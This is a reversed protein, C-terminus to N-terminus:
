PAALNGYAGVGANPIFPKIKSLASKPVFLQDGPRLMPDEGLNGAKLMQKVNFIKAELWQDNVRRFLLVQSHKADGNFGGAMAVAETLTVNGRLEYKGPHNLQGSATFYPREFDKLVVSILPDNLIKDYANRLTQTLEPVTQGAVHVDGVGKLTIFGDPQVTVSQNFEPSLEFNVDFTDASRITYRPNRTLFQADSKSDAKTLVAATPATGSVPTPQPASQAGCL